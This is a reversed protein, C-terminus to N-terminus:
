RIRARPLFYFRYCPSEMDWFSTAFLRFFSLFFFSICDRRVFWRWLLTGTGIPSPPCAGACSYPASWGSWADFMIGLWRVQVCRPLPQTCTSRAYSFSSSSFSRACISLRLLSDVFELVILRVFSLFPLLHCLFLFSLLFGSVWCSCLACCGGWRRVHYAPVDFPVRWPSPVIVPAFPSPGFSTSIYFSRVFSAM